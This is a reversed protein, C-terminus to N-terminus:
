VQRGNQLNAVAIYTGLPLVRQAATLKHRFQKGYFSAVGIQYASSPDIPDLKGSRYIFHPSCRVALGVYLAACM